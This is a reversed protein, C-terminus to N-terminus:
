KSGVLGFTILTRGSAITVLQEGEVEFSIPSAGIRAGTPFSWLRKGDSSDLAYFLDDDAAFSLDIKHRQHRGQVHPANSGQDHLTAGSQQVGQMNRAQDRANDDLLDRYDRPRLIGRGIQTRGLGPIM